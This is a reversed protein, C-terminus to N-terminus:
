ENRNPRVGSSRRHRPDDTGHDVLRPRIGGDMGGDIVSLEDILLDCAIVRAGDGALSRAIAKGIGRAAGAVIATQGDFRILM